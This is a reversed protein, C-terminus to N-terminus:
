RLTIGSVFLGSPPTVAKDPRCYDIINFTAPRIRGVVMCLNRQHSIRRMNQLPQKRVTPM